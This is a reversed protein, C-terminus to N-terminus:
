LKQTKLCDNSIWLFEHYNKFKMVHLITIRLFQSVHYKKLFSFTIIKWLINKWKWFSGMRKRKLVEEKNPMGGRFDEGRLLSQPLSSYKHINTKSNEFM